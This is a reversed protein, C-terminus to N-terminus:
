NGTASAGSLVLSAGAAILPLRYPRVYTPIRGYSRMGARMAPRLRARRGRWGSSHQKTTVGQNLM